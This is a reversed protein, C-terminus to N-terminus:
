RSGSLSYLIIGSCHFGEEMWKMWGTRARKLGEHSDPLPWLLEMVKPCDTKQVERKQRLAFQFSGNM